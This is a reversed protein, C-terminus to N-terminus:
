TAACRSRSARSRRAISTGRAAAPVVRAQLPYKESELDQGNPVYVACSACGHTTAAIVRAEDDAVDDGFGRAVDALPQTSLIAVGHLKRQGFIAAQYGAAAIREM